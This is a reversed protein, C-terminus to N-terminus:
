VMEFAPIDVQEDKGQDDDWVVRVRAGCHIEESKSGSIGALITPGGDLDIVAVVYPIEAELSPHFARRFVIFSYLTGEGGHEKWEYEESLCNPCVVSAPWRIHGCSSCNQFKLKHESCGQWFPKADAVVRPTFFSKM